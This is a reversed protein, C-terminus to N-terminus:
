NGCYYHFLKEFTSFWLIHRSKTRRLYYKCKYTRSYWTLSSSPHSFAPFIGIKLFIELDFVFLSFLYTKITRWLYVEQGSSFISFAPPPPPPSKGGWVFYRRLCHGTVRARDVCCLIKSFSKLVKIKVLIFNEISYNRICFYDTSYM